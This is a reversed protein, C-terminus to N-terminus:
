ADNRDATRALYRRLAWACFTAAMERLCQQTPRDRIVPSQHNYTARSRDERAEREWRLHGTTTRQYRRYPSDLRSAPSSGASGPTVTPWTLPYRHTCHTDARYRGFDCRVPGRDVRQDEVPGRRASERLPGPHDGCRSLTLSMGTGSSRRGAVSPMEGTPPSRAHCRSCAAPIASTAASERAPGAYSRAGRPVLIKRPCPTGTIGLRASRM